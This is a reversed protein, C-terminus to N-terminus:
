IEKNNADANKFAAMLSFTRHPLPQRQEVAIAHIPEKVMRLTAAGPEESVAVATRASALILFGLLSSRLLFSGFADTGFADTFTQLYSMVSALGRSGKRSGGLCESLRCCRRFIVLTDTSITTEGSDGYGSGIKRGSLKLAGAQSVSCSNSHSGKS